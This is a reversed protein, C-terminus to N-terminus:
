AFPFIGLPRLNVSGMASPIAVEDVLAVLILEISVREQAFGRSKAVFVLIGESSLPLIPQESCM